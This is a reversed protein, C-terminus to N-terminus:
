SIGGEYGCRSGCIMTMSSALNVSAPKNLLIISEKLSQTWNILKLQESFPIAACATSSERTSRTESEMLTSAKSSNLASLFMTRPHSKVLRLLIRRQPLLESLKVRIASSEGSEM